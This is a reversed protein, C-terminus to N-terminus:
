RWSCKKTIKPYLKRKAKDWDAYREKLSKLSFYILRGDTPEAWDDRKPYKPTTIRDDVEEPTYNAMLNRLQHKIENAHEHRRNEYFWGNSGTCLGTTFVKKYSRSM